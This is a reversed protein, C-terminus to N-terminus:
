FITNRLLPLQKGLSLISLGPSFDALVTLFVEKSSFYSREGVVVPIVMLSFESSRDFTKSIIKWNIDLCDKLFFQVKQLFVEKQLLNPSKEVEVKSWNLASSLIKNFTTKNFSSVQKWYWRRVNGFFVFRIQQEPGREIFNSHTFTNGCSSFVTCFFSQLEDKKYRWLNNHKVKTFM